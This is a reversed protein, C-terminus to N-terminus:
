KNSQPCVKATKEPYAAIDMNNNTILFMKMKNVFDAAV